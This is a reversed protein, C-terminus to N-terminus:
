LVTFTNTKPVGDIVSNANNANTMNSVLNNAINSVLKNAGIANNVTSLGGAVGELESENLEGQELVENKKEESM